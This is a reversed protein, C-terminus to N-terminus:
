TQNRRVLSGHFIINIFFLFDNKRAFIELEEFSFHKLILNKFISGQVVVNVNDCVVRDYKRFCMM